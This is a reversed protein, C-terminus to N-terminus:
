GAAAAADAPVHTARRPRARPPALATSAAAVEATDAAADRAARVAAHREKAGEFVARAPAKVFVRWLQTVLGFGIESAVLGTVVFLAFLALAGGWAGLVGHAVEAAGLGFSGAWDRARVGILGVLALAELVLATGFASELALPGVPRDRLRNMAWALLLLPAGYAAIRGFTEVLGHALLAGLPGSANPMSWAGFGLGPARYIVLSALAVLGLTGLLVGAVHRRRRESLEIKM